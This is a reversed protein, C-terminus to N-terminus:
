KRRKTKQANLKSEINDTTFYINPFMGSVSSTGSLITNSRSVPVYIIRQPAEEQKMVRYVQEIAVRIGDTRSSLKNKKVIHDLHDLSEADLSLNM